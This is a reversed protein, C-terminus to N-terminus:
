ITRKEGKEFYHKNKIRKKMYKLFESEGIMGWHEDNILGNTEKTLSTFDNWKRFSWYYMHIGNNTFYEILNKIKNEFYENEYYLDFVWNNYRYILSLRLELKVEPPFHYVVGHREYNFAPLITWNRGEYGLFLYFDDSDSGSHASWRRGLYTNNKYLDEDFWSATTGRHDSFTRQILDLYEVGFVINKVGFLGKKRVGYLYAASVDWHSRLEYLNHLHDNFGIEFFIQLNSPRFNGQVIFTM